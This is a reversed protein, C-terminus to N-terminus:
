YMRNIEPFFCYLAEVFSNIEEQLKQIQKELLTEIFHHPWLAPALGLSCCSSALIPFPENCIHVFHYIAMSLILKSCFGGCLFLCIRSNEGRSASGM